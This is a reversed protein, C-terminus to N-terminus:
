DMWGFVRIFGDRRAGTTQCVAARGARVEYDGADVQLAVPSTALCWSAQYPDCQGRHLEGASIEQGDRQLSFSVSTEGGRWNYWLEVHDLRTPASLNFSSTDTFGCGAPNWVEYLLVAEESPATATDHGGGTHRGSRTNGNAVAPPAPGTNPRARVPPPSADAGGGSTQVASFEQYPTLNTGFGSWRGDAIRLRGGESVLRGSWTQAGWSGRRDFEIRDGDIRGSVTDRMGDVLYVMVGSFTQGHQETITLTFHYGRNCCYVDWDGTLTQAHAVAPIMPAALALALCGAALRFPKM